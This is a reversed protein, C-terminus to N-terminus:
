ARWEDVLMGFLLTDWWRDKYREKERLRGEAHFGLKELVRASAINDAVCWSSIRHLHLESFGFRVIARAAETAYGRGWHEPALEYGIEAEHAGPSEMRIGCNGILQQNSQLVIALQFRTRPQERQQSVFSLVFARASGQTRDSWHSYRLYLPDRQYALVAPWDDEQFERLILRETVLEM